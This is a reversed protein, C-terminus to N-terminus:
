LAHAVRGWEVVSRGVGAKMGGRVYSLLERGPECWVGFRTTEDAHSARVCGAHGVLVADVAVCILVVVGHHVLASDHQLREEFLQLGHARGLELEHRVAGRLAGCVLLQGRGYVLVEDIHAGGLGEHAAGAAERLEDGHEHLALLADLEPRARNVRSSVAPKRRARLM